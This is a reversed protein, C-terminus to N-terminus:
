AAALHAEFWALARPWADAASEEHYSDRRDCFFGHGASEYRVVDHPVEAEADLRGRLAEVDDVPISKDRDGFFGLWPTRMGAVGDVLSPMADSRVSVIGGGYFTVAAGLQRKTAVLFAVRGGLCFGVIGTHADDYGMQQLHQRAADVDALIGDDSLQQMHPMVKQFDDYGLVPSGTRHFLAPAVAVYGEGALRSCVDAIHDNLGFAEQIVIVARGNPEDPTVELLDM